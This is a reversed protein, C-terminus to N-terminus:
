LLGRERVEALREPPLCVTLNRELDVLELDVAYVLFDDTVPLTGSWDRRNLRAAVACMLRRGIESGAAADVDDADLLTLEQAVLRLAAIDDLGADTSAEFDAPSWAAHADASRLEAREDATAAHIEFSLPRQRYYSLALCAVPGDVDLREAAGLVRTVFSDELDRCAVDLDFGAPPREYRVASRRGIVEVLRLLGRHDHEATLVSRPRGGHEIEVRSIRGGTYEYRERGSGGRAVMEALRMLGGESEYAHLYIPGDADFQAAEVLGDGHRVFTEAHLRSRLFGSYEEIVVTRGGADFGIRLVDRGVPPRADLRRGPKLLDREFHLPRLDLGPWSYWDWREVCATAAQKWSDYEDALRAFRAALDAGDIIM